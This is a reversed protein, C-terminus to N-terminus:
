GSAPVSRAHLPLLLPRLSPAPLLLPLHTPMQGQRPQPEPRNTRVLWAAWGDPFFKFAGTCFAASAIDDLSSHAPRRSCRLASSCRAWRHSMLALPISTQPVLRSRLTRHALSFYLMRSPSALRCKQAWSAFLVLLVDTLPVSTGDISQLRWRALSEQSM